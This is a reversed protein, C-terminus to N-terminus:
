QHSPLQVRLEHSRVDIIPLTENDSWEDLTEAVLYEYDWYLEFMHDTEWEPCFELGVEIYLDLPTIPYDFYVYNGILFQNMNAIFESASLPLRNEGRSGGLIACEEVSLSQGTFPEGTNSSFVTASTSNEPSFEVASGNITKLFDDEQNPIVVPYSQAESDIVSVNSPLFEQTDVGQDLQPLIVFWGILGIITVVAVAKLGGTFYSLRM